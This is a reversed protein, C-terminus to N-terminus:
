GAYPLGPQGPFSIVIDLGGLEGSSLSMTSRYANMIDSVIALGIGSGEASEDLRRGREVIATM